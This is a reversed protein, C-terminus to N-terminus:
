AVPLPRRINDTLDIRLRSEERADRLKFLKM